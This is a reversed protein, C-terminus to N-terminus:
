KVDSVLRIGAAWERWGDADFDTNLKSDEWKFFMRYANEENDPVATSTWYICSITDGSVENIFGGDRYGTSPLFVFGAAEAVAWASVNYSDAITGSFGDPAIVIGYKGNVSLYKYTYNALLYRWEARSLTRWVGADGNVTFDAKPTTETANTFLVDSTSYDYDYDDAYASSATKSWYFNSVHSTEWSSSIDYQNTEFEFSDGDWYLNGNSFYVQDGAANITFKGSLAGDPRPETYDKVSFKATTIASREIVLNKGTKMSKTFVKGDSATFSIVTGTYTGAPIAIYFDKAIDEDITVGEGCSLTISEDLGAASVTVSKVVVPAPQEIADVTLRLIGGENQFKISAPVQGDAVTVEAKMPSGTINDEAYTQSAPWDTGNYSSPYYVTYDGNSPVTGEFKGSTTGEGETLTFTEEGIKFSDDTSWVVEYGDTDNGSLATRTMGEETSAFIVAKTGIAPNGEPTATEKNCSVMSFAAAIAALTIIIKKM